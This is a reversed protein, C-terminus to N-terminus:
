KEFEARNIQAVRLAKMEVRESVIWFAASDPQISRSAGIPARGVGQRARKLICHLYIGM